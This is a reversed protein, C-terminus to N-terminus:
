DRPEIAFAGFMPKISLAGTFPDEVIKLTGSEGIIFVETGPNVELGQIPELDGNVVQQIRM